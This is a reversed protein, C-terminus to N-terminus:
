VYSLPKSLGSMCYVYLSFYIIINPALYYYHAPQTNLSFQQHHHTPLRQRVNGQQDHHQEEDVSDDAHLHKALDAQVILSLDVAVVVELGKRV